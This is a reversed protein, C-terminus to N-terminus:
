PLSCCSQGMFFILYVILINEWRKLNFHKELINLIANLFFAIVFAWIFPRAISGITSCFKPNDIVKWIFFHFLLYLSFNLM